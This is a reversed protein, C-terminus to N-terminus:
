TKDRDTQLLEWLLIHKLFAHHAAFTAIVFGPLGDLFGGKLFYSRVFAAPGALAIKLPSTRHGDDVMQRAALPAYREGIMRHHHSANEVSYHLIDGALNDTKSGDDMELSEHILVDKWRGKNRNFLRLQRDPYWDGHRIPRDMYISLRPIKYGDYFPDGDKLALIEKRLAPLVREDADLSFIWDNAAQDAAFQKQRAFGEWKRNFVKAGSAEAIERTRDSSESDVVIIEDAWAVSELAEAINKQENFAIIVASIKM